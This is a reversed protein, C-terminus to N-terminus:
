AFHIEFIPLYFSFFVFGVIFVVEKSLKLLWLSQLFWGFDHSLDCIESCFLFGLLSTEITSFFSSVKIRTAEAAFATVASLLGLLSLVVCM